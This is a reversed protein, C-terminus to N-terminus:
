PWPWPGEDAPGGEPPPTSPPADPGMHRLLHSKFGRHTAGCVIELRASEAARARRRTVARWPMSTGPRGRPCRPGSRAHRRREAPPLTADARRPRTRHGPGACRGSTFRTLTPLCCSEAPLGHAAAVQGDCRAGARGRAAPQAREVPASDTPEAGHGPPRRRGAGLLTRRARGASGAGATEALQPALVVHHEGQAARDSVAAHGVGVQEAARPAGALRRRGPDQGLGEVAGVGRVALRAAHAGRADLDGPPGREVDVLEVGGGVVPDVGHAVQDGVGGEAGRAAPLDVDDVLDVHEGVRRGVGQELRELLRGGM